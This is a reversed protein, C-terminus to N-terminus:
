SYDKGQFGLSGAILSKRKEEETLVDNIQDLPLSTIHGVCEETWMFLKLIDGELNFLQAPNKIAVQCIQRLPQTIKLSM